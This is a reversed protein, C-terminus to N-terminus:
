DWIVLYAKIPHHQDHGDFILNQDDGISDFLVDHLEVIMDLAAVPNLM